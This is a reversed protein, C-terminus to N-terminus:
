GALYHVRREGVYPHELHRGVDEYGHGAVDIDWRTDPTLGLEITV